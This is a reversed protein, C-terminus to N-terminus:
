SVTTRPRPIIVPLPAPVPAPAANVPKPRINTQPTAAPKQVSPTPAPAPASVTKKTVIKQAVAQNFIKKQLEARKVQLEADAKAASKKQNESFDATRQALRENLHSFKSESYKEPAAKKKSQDAQYVFYILAFFLLISGGYVLLASKFNNKVALPSAM